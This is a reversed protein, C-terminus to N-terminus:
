KAKLGGNLKCPVITGMRKVWVSYVFFSPRILSVDTTLSKGNSAKRTDSAPSSGARDGM